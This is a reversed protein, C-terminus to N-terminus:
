GKIRDGENSADADLMILQIPGATTDVLVTGHISSINVVPGDIATSIPILPLGQGHYGQAHIHGNDAVWAPTTVVEGQDNIGLIDNNNSGTLTPIILTGTIRANGNVFLQAGNWTLDAGGAFSGFDNYQISTTSGGPTGGGGGGTVNSVTSFIEWGNDELGQAETELATADAAEVTTWEWDPTVAPSNLNRDEVLIRASIIFSM